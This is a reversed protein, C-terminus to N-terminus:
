NGGLDDRRAPRGRRRHRNPRSAVGQAGGLRAPRGLGSQSHRRHSQAVQTLAQCGRGGLAYQRTGHSAAGRPLSEGTMRSVQHPMISPINRLHRMARSAATKAPPHVDPSRGGVGAGSTVDGAGLGTSVPTWPSHKTPIIRTSRASGPSTTRKSPEWTGVHNGCPKPNKM